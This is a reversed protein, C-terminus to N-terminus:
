EIDYDKPQVNTAGAWYKGVQIARHKSQCLKTAYIFNNRYLYVYCKHRGRSTSVTYSRKEIKRLINLLTAKAPTMIGGSKMNPELTKIVMDRDLFWVTGAHLDIKARDKM